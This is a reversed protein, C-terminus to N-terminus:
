MVGVHYKLRKWAEEQTVDQRYELSLLSFYRKIDEIHKMHNNGENEFQILIDHIFKKRNRNILQNLLRNFLKYILFVCVTLALLSIINDTKTFQYSSSFVYTSAQFAFGFFLFIFGFKCEIKQSIGSIIYAENPAFSFGTESKIDNLSKTALGRSIFWAGIVDLSLGLLGTYNVINM